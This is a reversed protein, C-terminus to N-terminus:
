ARRDDDVREFLEDGPVGLAQSLRRKWGPFPYLKGAILHSLTSTHIGTQRSLAAQSIKRRELEEAIRLRLESMGKGKKPRQTM